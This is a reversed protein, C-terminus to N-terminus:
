LLDGMIVAGNDLTVIYRGNTTRAIAIPKPIEEPENRAPFDVPNYNPIVPATTGGVGGVGVGQGNVPVTTLGAPLDYQYMGRRIRYVPIDGQRALFALADATQSYTLDVEAVVQRIHYPVGPHEQLFNYVTPGPIREDGAYQIPM